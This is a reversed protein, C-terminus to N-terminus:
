LGRSLISTSAKQRLLKEAETLDSGQAAPIISNVDTAATATPDVAPTTVEDTTADISDAYGTIEKLKDYNELVFAGNNYGPYVTGAKGGRDIMSDGKAKLLQYKEEPTSFTVETGNRGHLVIDNNKFFNADAKFKDTLLDWSNNLNALGDTRVGRLLENKATNADYGIPTWTNRYEPPLMSGQGGSADAGM